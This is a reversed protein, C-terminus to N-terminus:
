FTQDLFQSLMDIVPDPMMMQFKARTQQKPGAKHEITDFDQYYREGSLQMTYYYEKGPSSKPREIRVVYKDRKLDLGDGIFRHYNETLAEGANPDSDAVITQRTGRLHILQVRLGEGEFEKRKGRYDLQDVLISFHVKGPNKVAFRYYDQPNDSVMLSFVNLRNQNPRMDGIYRADEIKENRVDWVDTNFEQVQKKDREKLRASLDALPDNSSVSSIASM